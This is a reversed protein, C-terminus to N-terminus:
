AGHPPSCRGRFAHVVRLRDSAPYISVQFVDALARGSRWDPNTLKAAGAFAYSALVQAALDGMPIQPAPRM